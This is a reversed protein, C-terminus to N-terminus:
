ARSGIILEQLDSARPWKFTGFNDVLPHQELSEQKKRKPESKSQKCVEKLHDALIHISIRQSNRRPGAFEL